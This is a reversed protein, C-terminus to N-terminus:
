NWLMLCRCRTRKCIMGDSERFRLDKKKRDNSTKFLEQTEEDDMQTELVRDM